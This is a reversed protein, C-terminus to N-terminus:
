AVYARLMWLTKEQEDAIGDLLNLTGVDGAEDAMRGIEREAKVLAETDAVLNKVMEEASPTGADEKLSAAELFGSMTSVPRAGFTLIREAIEDVKMAADTYLEEFKVHLEFFLPGKVNWHYNRLKQYYVSWDALLGQMRDTVSSM